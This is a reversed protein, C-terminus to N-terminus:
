EMTLWILDIFRKVYSGLHLMDLLAQMAQQNNHTESHVQIIQKVRQYLYQNSDILEQVVEQDIHTDRHSQQQELAQALLKTNQSAYHYVNFFAGIREVTAIFDDAFYDIGLSITEEILQQEYQLLATLIQQPNASQQSLNLFECWNNIWNQPKPQRVNALYYGREAKSTSSLRIGDTFTFSTIFMLLDEIKGQKLEFEVECIAERQTPSVVIEGMDLAVEIESGNALDIQWSQRCFDTTFVPILKDQLAVLDLEVLETVKHQSLYQALEALNPQASSLAINYEPRIHLGAQVQGKTKLTLSFQQDIGRVRLGMKNQAFFHQQTDYYCNTLFQKQQQLIHFNTMEQSLFDAFAPTVTLKLEIEKNM